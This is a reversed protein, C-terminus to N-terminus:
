RRSPLDEPLDEPMVDPFEELVQKICKSPTVFKTAEKLEFEDLVRMVCMMGYGGVCEKEWTKGLMFHITPGGVCPLEHAKVRVIGSKSPIRVLRNHGEIFVNNQTIFEMGLVCDMRGLTSVLLDVKGRCNRLQLPVEKTQLTTPHPVGDAFHVEIPAKLEELHLEMRKASERTIFNHSAGTDLICLADRKDVKGKLFILRNCEPQALNANFTIVKSGGNGM